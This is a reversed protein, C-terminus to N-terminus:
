PSGSCKKRWDWKPLCATDTRLDRGLYPWNNCTFAGMTETRSNDLQEDVWLELRGVGTENYDLYRVMAVHHWDGDNVTSNSVLEIGAGPGDFYTALKGLSGGELIHLNLTLVSGDNYSGYIINRHTISASIKVWAEITFDGQTINKLAQYPVLATGSVADDGGDFYLSYQSDTEDPTNGQIAVANTYTPAAVGSGASFDRSNGSTDDVTVASQNNIVASGGDTEFDFYAVTGGWSHVILLVVLSFVLVLKKNKLM